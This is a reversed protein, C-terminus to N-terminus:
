VPGKLKRVVRADEVKTVPYQGADDKEYQKVMDWVTLLAVSVAVLAEMEVGTREVARVIAEARIREKGAVELSVKVDTLMLPHCLPILESTRKAALVGALRATSLVDGKEVRGSKIREITEIRLKLFSEAVAERFVVPKGGVDVM